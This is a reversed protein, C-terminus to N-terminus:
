VLTKYHERAYDMVIDDVIDFMTSCFYSDIGDRRPLADCLEVVWDTDIMEYFSFTLAEGSHTRNCAIEKAEAKSFKDKPSCVSVGVKFTGNVEMVNIAGIGNGTKSRVYRFYNKM